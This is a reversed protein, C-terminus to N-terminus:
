KGRRKKAAAAIQRADARRDAASNEYKASEPRENKPERMPVRKKATAM